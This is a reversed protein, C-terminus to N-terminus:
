KYHIDLVINDDTDASREYDISAIVGRLFNNQQELTLHEFGDILDIAGKIREAHATTDLTQLSKEANEIEIQLMSIATDAEAKRADFVDKPLSDELYLDLLKAKKTEQKRVEATFGKIKAKVATELSTTDNDALSTLLAYLDNRHQKIASVVAENVDDVKCGKVTCSKYGWEDQKICRRYYWTTIRSGDKRKKADQNLTLVGGCVRCYILGDLMSRVEKSRSYSRNRRGYALRKIENHEDITILAEHCNKARAKIKLRSSNYEAEGLYTRNYLLKQVRTPNFLNGKRTRYGLANAKRAVSAFSNGELATDVLYRYIPAEKDDVRLIKSEKDYYYGLPPTSAIWRKRLNVTDVKGKQLRHRIRKYEYDSLVSSFGFLLEQNDDEFTIRQEPTEITVGHEICLKKIDDLLGIDRGLRDIHAVLITDYTGAELGLVLRSLEPRNWKISSEVEEFIDYETYGRSEALSKLGERQNHLTDQIGGEDERSKRIYLAKRKTTASSM